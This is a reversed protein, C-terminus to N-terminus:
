CASGGQGTNLVATHTEGPLAPPGGTKRALQPIAVEGGLTVYGNLRYCRADGTQAEQHHDSKLVLAHWVCAPFSKM